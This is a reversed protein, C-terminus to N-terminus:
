RRRIAGLGSDALMCRASQLDGWLEDIKAQASQEADQREAALAAQIEGCFQDVVGTYELHFQRTLDEELKRARESIAPKL